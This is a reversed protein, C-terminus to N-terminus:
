VEEVESRAECHGSREEPKWVWWDCGHKARQGGAMLSEEGM